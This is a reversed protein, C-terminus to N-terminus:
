TEPAILQRVKEILQTPTFPKKLWASAGNEIAEEFQEKSATGSVILVPIDRNKEDMKLAGLLKLGTYEGLNYDAVILNFRKFAMKELAEGMSSTIVVELGTPSLIDRILHLIERNDDVVVVHGTMM